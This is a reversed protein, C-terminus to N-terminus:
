KKYLGSLSEDKDEDKKIGYDIRPPILLETNPLEPEDIRQLLRQVSMEGVETIRIDISPPRPRIYSIFQEDNNCGLIDLSRINFGEARLENYVGLMTDDSCFFAGTFNNRLETLQLSLSCCHAATSYNEPYQSEIAIAEIGLEHCKKLFVEQRQIFAPHTTDSNIYVVQRHHHEHMYRAAMAGVQSNNYLVHDFDHGTDAHERFCWVAPLTHLVEYLEASISKSSLSQVIVGDCYKKNLIEPIRGTEDAHALMLNMGNASLVEQMGSLLMPFAPMTFMKKPSIGGISLFVIIGTKEPNRTKIKRDPHRLRPRYGCEEIAAAIRQATEESVKGPDNIYRSVTGIGVGAKEAVTIISM